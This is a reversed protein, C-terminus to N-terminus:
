LLGPFEYRVGDFADGYNQILSIPYDGLFSVSYVEFGIIKVNGLGNSNLKDRLSRGIQGEMSPTMTCTPYTPNDNLPENQITIAYLPIGMGQFGQAAKLLYTSYYQVMNSKLTGGNMSGSDKMWGPPSWPLIHIKIRSNVSLIDKLTSFLYGPSRNINFQSFSTDGSSDDLSYVSASFDSAGIPVRIYSLGAANAGDTTDFMYRLVNWYNNSNRSKLNSLTLAASDTLTGGFGVIDQYVSGDNVGITLDGSPGSSVFNIPSSPPSSTFLKSRDWTTQWVDYIQQGATFLGCYSSLFLFPLIYSWM